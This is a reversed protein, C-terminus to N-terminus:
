RLGISLGSTLKLDDSELDAPPRSDHRWRLSLELDLASALPVSLNLDSLVRFDDLEGLDPQFYTTSTLTVRPGPTWGLVALNAARFVETNPDDDAPLRRPDLHEDEYMVGTGLDLRVRPRAIARVRLGSGYLVRRSLLLNRNAQIQAFHFTRLRPSLIYNYRIHAFRNNVLDSSEESLFDIGGLLRIWHSGGLYGLVTVASVDIVETNGGSLSAGLDLDLHAGRVDVPQLREVNLISQSALSTPPTATPVLALALITRGATRSLLRRMPVLFFALLALVALSRPPLTTLSRRTRDFGDM